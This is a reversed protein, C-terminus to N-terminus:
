FRRYESQRPFNLAEEELLLPEDDEGEKLGFRSGLRTVRGIKAVSHFLKFSNDYYM